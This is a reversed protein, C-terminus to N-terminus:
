EVQYESLLNNIEEETLIKQTDKYVGRINSNTIDPRVEQIKQLVKYGQNEPLIYTKDDITLEFAYAFVHVYQSINEKIKQEDDKEKGWIIIIKHRIIHDLNYDVVQYELQKQKQMEEDITEYVLNKNPSIGLPITKSTGSIAYYDCEIHLFCICLIVLTTIAISVFAIWINRWIIRKNKTELKITEM